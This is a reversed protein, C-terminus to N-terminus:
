DAAPRPLRQQQSPRAMDMAAMATAVMAMAATAAMALDMDMHATDEMGM